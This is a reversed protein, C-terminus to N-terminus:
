PSPKDTSCISVREGSRSAPAYDWVEHKCRREGYFGGPGGKFRRGINKHQERTLHQDRFVLVSSACFTGHLEAFAADGIPKSLDIGRIEAGLHPTIKDIQM